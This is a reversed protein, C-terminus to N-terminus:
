RILVKGTSGDARRFIYIGASPTGDVRRGCLDFYETIGAADAEIDAIGSEATGEIKAFRGWLSNAKYAELASEPVTLTAGAFVQTSFVSSNAYPATDRNINIATVNDCGAFSNDPISSVAEGINITQLTSRKSFPLGNVDTATCTWSRNLNLTKLRCWADNNPNATYIGHGFVDSGLKLPQSAEEITVTALKPCYSFAENGIEQVNGPIKVNTLSSCGAFAMKSITTVTSSIILTTARSCYNFADDHIIEIGEPIVIATLAPNANFAERNIERMGTSIWLAYLSRNGYVGRPEVETVSNPLRLEFLRLTQSIACSKIVTVTEPIKLATLYGNGYFASDGLATVTYATGNYEVTEPIVVSSLQANKDHRGVEWTKDAESLINYNLGEYTFTVKDAAHLGLATGLGIAASLIKNRM